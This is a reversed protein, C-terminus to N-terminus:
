FSRESTRVLPVFFLHYSLVFYDEENWREGCEDIKEGHIIGKALTNGDYHYLFSTVMHWEVLGKLKLFLSIVLSVGYDRVTLGLM